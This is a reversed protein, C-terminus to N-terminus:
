WQAAEPTEIAAKYNVPGEEVMYVTSIMAYTWSGANGQQGGTRGGQQVEPLEGPEADWFMSKGKVRLRSLMYPERKRDKAVPRSGVDGSSPEGGSAPEIQPKRLRFPAQVEEDEGWDMAEEEEEEEDEEPLIQNEVRASAEDDSGPEDFEDNWALQEEWPQTAPAYYPQAPSNNFRKLPYNSTSEAFVVDRSLLFRGEVPDYLRYQQVTSTYGVLM